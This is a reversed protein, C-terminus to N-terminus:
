SRWMIYGVVALAIVIVVVPVFIAFYLLWPLHGYFAIAMVATILFIMLDMATLICKLAIESVTELSKKSENKM